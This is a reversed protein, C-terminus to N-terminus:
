EGFVNHYVPLSTTNGLPTVYAGTIGGDVVFETGTTFTSEDAALYVVAYAQEIAEGFRGMPVHVLRREKKEETNLFDMLLKTRLPGPCLANVRINERAHIVALERTMAVVAGKSATYALQPTAAGLIGVFSAVNIISGGGARRMAPIAYKCGWWVGKVNITFTKDWVAEPTTEANDDDPHMIGANNFMVNLKGFENEAFACTAKVDEEKSVDCKSFVARRIAGCSPKIEQNIKDAIARGTVENMDACVVHAGEKAFLYATEFGIGSGAGTIVAVKGDLRGPMDTIQKSGHRKNGSFTKCRSCRACIRCPNSFGASFKVLPAPVSLFHNQKDSTNTKSGGSDTTARNACTITYFSSNKRRLRFVWSTSAVHVSHMMHDLQTLRTLDDDRVIISVDVSVRKTRDNM